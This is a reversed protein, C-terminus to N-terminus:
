LDMVQASQWKHPPPPSGNLYYHFALLCPPGMQINTEGPFSLRAEGQRYNSDGKLAMRKESFVKSHVQLPFFLLRNGLLWCTRLTSFEFMISVFKKLTFMNRSGGSRYHICLAAQYLPSSHQKISSSSHLAVSNGSLPVFMHIDVTVHRVKSLKCVMSFSWADVQLQMSRNTMCVISFSRAFFTCEIRTIWSNPNTGVM